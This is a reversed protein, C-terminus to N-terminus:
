TGDHVGSNYDTISGSFGELLVSSIAMATYEAPITVENSVVSNVLTVAGGVDGSLTLTGIQCGIFNATCDELTITTISANQVRIDEAETAGLTTVYGGDLLLVPATCTLTGIIGSTNDILVPKDVTIDGVNGAVVITRMHLLMASFSAEDSVDPVIAMAEAFTDFPKDASGDAGAGGARSDVYIRSLGTATGTASLTM